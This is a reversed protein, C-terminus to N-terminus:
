AGFKKSCAAYAAFADHSNSNDMDFVVKGGMKVRFAVGDPMDRAFAAAKFAIYLVKAGGFEIASASSEPLETGDISITIKYDHGTVLASQDAPMTLIGTAGSKSTLMILKAGGQDTTLSCVTDASIYSWKGMTEAHASTVTSIMGFAIIAKISHRYMGLIKM